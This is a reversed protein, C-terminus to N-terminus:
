KVPHKQLYRLTRLRDYFVGKEPTSFINVGIRQRDFKHAAIWLHKSDEGWEGEGIGIAMTVKRIKSIDEAVMQGSIVTKGESMRTAQAATWLIVRRRAAFKRLDRYIDAFEFRRDQQKRSPRIEDDYDVIVVDADFGLSREREWVSEIQAVSLGGDTGDYIRLQSRLRSRFKNFRYKLKEGELRLDAIPMEAICADFRDEVDELPDELTIFLVNLGQFLYSGATWIMALSKGMKYGALWLGLHGRGVSQVEGDLPEIMLCPNRHVNRHARRQQRVEVEEIFNTARRGNTSVIAKSTVEAWSDETLGGSQELDILERLASHRAKEQKFERVQEVLVECRAPDYHQKLRILYDRYRKAKDESTGSEKIWKDLYRSALSALPVRHTAFFPLAIGAIIWAFSQEKALPKFDDETLVDGVAQLWHRDWVAMALLELQTNKDQTPNM